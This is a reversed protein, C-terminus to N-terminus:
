FNDLLSLGTRPSPQPKGLQGKACAWGPPQPHRPRAPGRGGTVAARQRRCHGAVIPVAAALVGAIVGVLAGLAAAVDLEQQVGVAHGADTPALTAQQM